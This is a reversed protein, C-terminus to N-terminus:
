DVDEPEIVREKAPFKTALVVEEEEMALGGHSDKGDPEDVPLATMGEKTEVQQMNHLETNDMRAITLTGDRNSADPAALPDSDVEVWHEIDDNKNPEEIGEVRTGKPWMMTEYAM